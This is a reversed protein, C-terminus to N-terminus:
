HMLHLQKAVKSPIERSRKVRASHREGERGRRLVRAQVIAIKLQKKNIKVVLSSTGCVGPAARVPM